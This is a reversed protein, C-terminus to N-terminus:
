LVRPSSDAEANFAEPSEVEALDIEPAEAPGIIWALLEALAFVIIGVCASVSGTCGSPEGRLTTSGTGVAGTFPIKAVRCTKPRM